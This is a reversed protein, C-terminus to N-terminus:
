HTMAYLLINIGLAYGHVSFQLFYERSDGEREFSDGIDTNHTALVMVRGHEDVIARANPTASLRGRESTPGGPGGWYGISPIQPLSALPMLGHFIPHEIPLDVFPYTASPLVKRMQSEFIDWAYDGWFDDAWLFGGKLLYDRLGVSERDDLYVSGVETMMIFPCHFLEPTGLNILLHKPTDNEDRGVPTKTLESLRVSLNQDARPFDVSWNGGDGNSSQRFVVRCFQFSGDFDELTAYRLPRDSYGGQFRRFQAGAISAILLVVISVAAIRGRM